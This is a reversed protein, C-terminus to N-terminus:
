GFLDIYKAVEKLHTCPLSIVENDKSIKYTNRKLRRSYKNIIRYGKYTCTRTSFKRYSEIDTYDMTHTSPVTVYNAKLVQLLHNIYTKSQGRASLMSM